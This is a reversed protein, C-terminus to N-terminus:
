SDYWDGELCRSDIWIDSSVNWEADLKREKKNTKYPKFRNVWYNFRNVWKTKHSNQTKDGREIFLIMRMVELANFWKCSNETPRLFENNMYEELNFM